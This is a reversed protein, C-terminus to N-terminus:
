ASKSKNVTLFRAMPDEGNLNLLLLFVTVVVMLLSIGRLIREFGVLCKFLPEQLDILSSLLHYYTFVKLLGM